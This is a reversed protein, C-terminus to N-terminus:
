VVIRKEAVRLKASRARPNKDVEDPQPVIPKGMIKVTPRGGCVCVPMRPPCVCGKALEQLTQKAIRDELSHFTIIALRGGPKLSDVAARFADQLITLEQNVEIRIAQFTRKAPHPGDRRAAAPIAKKIINVLQGTTEIRQENRHEVIFKAIRKAWRDEGYGAIIQHLRDEAYFNVVDYASRKASPDMRMDLAADQMYSFGREAEDLQHSSVGLDFVIGDVAEVGAQALVEPLHSFNSQIITVKCPFEKLREEGAKIAAPDQDIGIVWGEENLQAAIGATHGAGGMTCDVYVGVPSIDLANLTEAWLVSTHQFNQVVIGM